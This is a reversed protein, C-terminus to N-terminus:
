EGIIALTREIEEVTNYFYASLRIGGERFSHVVGAESLRASAAAADPPCVSVVSAYQGPKSPTKLMVDGRACAWEVIRDALLQSYAAVNAAGLEQILELTANMAAFEQYPLTVFEFKRADDRWTLDYNTLRTFDDSGRVAMWSVDHPTMQTILDRRVYVFGAGWPSLLWKQAGCALIDVPTSRLDLTLPGLGQIADVVFFVGRDRCLKGLAALDVRAGSAFQVWSVTVVRVREDELERSLRDVDLPGDDCPLRRYEVGRRAALQMWPYVNAPFERDPSLVVDGRELPLSFAALNLGFTTNTAVAIESEHAGILEAILQRSVDLTGFEMQQSIRHPVARHRAWDALTEVTRRPLPGTSANNLYIVDEALLWPFETRRLTDVDYTM